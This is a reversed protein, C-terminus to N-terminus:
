TKHSQRIRFTASCYRQSFSFDRLSIAVQSDAKESSVAVRRLKPLSYRNTGLSEYNEVSNWEYCIVYVCVCVYACVGVYIPLYINQDHFLPIDTSKWVTKTVASLCNQQKNVKNRSSGRVLARIQLHPILPTV